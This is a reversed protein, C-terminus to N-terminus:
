LKSFIRGAHVQAFMLQRAKSRVHNVPVGHSAMREDPCCHRVVTVADDELNTNDVSKLTEVYRAAHELIHEIEFWCSRVRFLEFVEIQIKM